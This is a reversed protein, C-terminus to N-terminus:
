LMSCFDLFLHEHYQSLSLRTIDKYVQLSAGIQAISACFLCFLHSNNMIIINSNVIKQKSMPVLINLFLFQAIYLISKVYVQM